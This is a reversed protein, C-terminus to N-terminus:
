EDFGGRRQAMAETRTLDLAATSEYWRYTSARFELPFRGKRGGRHKAVKCGVIRRAGDDFEKVTWLLVAVDLDQEIAGSDRLDSLVPEKDARKELDRNLQSLVVVAIGMQMALAKLGRSVEEVQTNRNADKLTSTTLQLYDLILVKLGKVMRAKVRIDNLTLGGDDDVYFPLTKVSEVAEVLSTWEQESLEGTQIHTSEIAGLQSVVADTVEDDPMEQSLLLTPAGSRAAALGITRALASKGVSPRAAVGYVKGPRLGGNLVRDLPALGTGSIAPAVEGQALATVRDILRISLAALDRPEKRVQRRDISAMLEAAENLQASFEGELEWALAAIQDGAAIMTRRLSRDRVIEAYRRANRASPISNALSNLYALGGAAEIEAGKKSRGLEDRVTIVDAPKCANILSSIATWIARHELRYFDHEQLIDGVRDWAANDLLLAGLVAQEAEISHPPIRPRAIDETDPTM